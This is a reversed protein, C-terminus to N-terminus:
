GGGLGGNFKGGCNFLGEGAEGLEGEKGGWWM